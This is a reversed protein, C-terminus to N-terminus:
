RLTAACASRGPRRPRRAGRRPSAPVVATRRRRCPPGRRRRARGRPRPPPARRGLALALLDVGPRGHQPGLERVLGAPRGLPEARVGGCGATGRWRRGRRPPSGAPRRGGRAAPVRRRRPSSAPAVGGSSNAHQPASPPATPRPPAPRSSRQADAPLGAAVQRDASGTTASTTASSPGTRATTVPWAPRRGRPVRRSARRDRRHQDGAQDGRRAARGSGSVAAPAPASLDGCGLPVGRRRARDPRSPWPRASCAAPWSWATRTTTWAPLDGVRHPAAPWPPACPRRATPRSAAAHPRDAAARVHEPGDTTGAALAARRPGRDPRGADLASPSTSSPWRARDAGPAAAPWARDRLRAAVTPRTPPRAALRAAGRGDRDAGARGPEPDAVDMGFPLTARLRQDEAALELLEEVLAYRTLARVGFTLHLSREGQAQPRTCGAARCTSRTAPPSCWTWRRGPRRRGRGVEDARGGWAQRELPDPLVPEHIRWRKTGDVQLM